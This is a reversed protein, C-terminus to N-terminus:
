SNIYLPRICHLFGNAIVSLSPSLGSPASHVSRIQRGLSPFAQSLPLHMLTGGTIRTFLTKDMSSIPCLSELFILLLIAISDTCPKVPRICPHHEGSIPCRSGPTLIVFSSTRLHSSIDQDPNYHINPLSHLALASYM